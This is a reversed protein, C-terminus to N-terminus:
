AVKERSRQRQLLSHNLSVPFVSLYKCLIILSQVLAIGFLLARQRSTPAFRCRESKHSCDHDSAIPRKRGHKQNVSLIVGNNELFPELLFIGTMKWDETWPQSINRFM